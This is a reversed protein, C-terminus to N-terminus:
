HGNLPLYKFQDGDPRSSTVSTSRLGLETAPSSSINGGGTSASGDKEKMLMAQMSLM